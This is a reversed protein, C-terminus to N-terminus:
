DLNAKQKDYCRLHRGIDAFNRYIEQYAALPSVAHYDVGLEKCATRVIKEARRLNCRPMYPWLHHEIQRNLGGYIFHILADITRSSSGINRATSVQKTLFDTETTPDFSRGYHNTVFTMGMYLGFSLESILMFALGKVAGFTTTWLVIYALLSISVLTLELMTGPYKTKLLFQVGTIRMGISTLTSIPLFFYPQYKVLFRTFGRKMEAQERTFALMPVECDPDLDINNPECHHLDHKIRWGTLSGYLFINAFYRVAALPFMRSSIQEHGTDHALFAFQGFVFGLAIATPIQLLFNETLKQLLIASSLVIVLMLINRIIVTDYYRPCKKLLGEKRIQQHISSFEKALDM